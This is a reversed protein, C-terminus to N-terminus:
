KRRAIADAMQEDTVRIVENPGRPTRPRRGLSRGFLWGLLLWLPNM